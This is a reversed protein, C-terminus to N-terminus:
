SATPRATPRASADHLLMLALLAAAEREGPMLTVLL